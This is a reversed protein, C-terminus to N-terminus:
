FLSDGVAEQWWQEFGPRQKEEPGAPAAVFLHDVGHQRRDRLVHRVIGDDGHVRQGPKEALQGAMETRTGTATVRLSRATLGRKGARGPRTLRRVEYLAWASEELLTDFQDQVDRLEAASVLEAASSGEILTQEPNLSRAVYELFLAEAGLEPEQRYREIQHARGSESSMAFPCFGCASKAFPEGLTEVLFRQCDARSWNWEQLPYYGTRVGTNYLLDKSSRGVENAEFGIAHRYPEGETIRAIVPDLCDGKAHISCARIGGRQPVTGASLM